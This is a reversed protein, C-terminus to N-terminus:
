TKPIFSSICSRALANCVVLPRRCQRLVVYVKTWLCSWIPPSNEGVRPLNQMGSWQWAECVSILLRFEVVSQWVTSPLCDSWVSFCDAMTFNPDDLISKCKNTKKNKTLMNVGIIMSTEESDVAAIATILCRLTEECYAHSTIFVTCNLICAVVQKNLKCQPRQGGVCM